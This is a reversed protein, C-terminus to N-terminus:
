DAPAAGVLAAVQWWALVLSESLSLTSPLAQSTSPDEQVVLVTTQRSPNLLVGTAEQYLESPSFRRVNLELRANALVVERPEGESTEEVESAIARFRRSIDLSLVGITAVAHRDSQIRNTDYEMPDSRVYVVTLVAGVAPGPVGIVDPGIGAVTELLGSQFNLRIPIIETPTTTTVRSSQCNTPYKPVPVRLQYPM